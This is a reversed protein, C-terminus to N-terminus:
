SHQLSGGSRDQHQLTSVLEQSPGKWHDVSAIVEVEEVEVLVGMTQAM